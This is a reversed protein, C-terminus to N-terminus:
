SIGVAYFAKEINYYEVGRGCFADLLKQRPRWTMGRQM